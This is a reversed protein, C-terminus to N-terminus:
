LEVRERRMVRLTAATGLFVMFFLIVAIATAEGVKYEHFMTQVMRTSIVHSSTTPNQNTLLWILDFAKMGGIVMFVISIALVEWILPVTISWFQRWPSDGDITASEYLSEPVNEMAALYLVMNFGCAGWISMPVLAWYLNDPSLWAFNEFSAFGMGALAANVLGGQPTYLHMWLLAAAIGGILHPFFFVVRFLKAGGIGRSICAALFLSFPIVFAPVVVMLFLNNRLAIWFADSELLLRRFNLLGRYPMDALNTLGNWDHVSWVFARLSPVIVFATYVLAAPAVFLLINNWRMRQLGGDAEAGPIRRTIGRRRVDRATTAVWYVAALGLASLLLAPKWRHNIKVRLPNDTRAKVAQANIELERAIEQPSKSGSIVGNMADTLLQQMEPYSQSHVGYSAHSREIIALLEDMDPSLNGASAGNVASVVDTMRSFTAAMRRSTMFRLFEAAERPHRSKSMVHYYNSNAFVADSSGVPDPVIPWNFCGLEFGDPIKGKMESKLWSGCPIMAANGTFFQLQAETHSMGLYGPQFYNTALKQVYGLAQVYNPNDISRPQVQWRQAHWAEHGALQYYASDVLPFTYDSYRGQFAFPAIGQKKVEECLAYLEDWTRPKAWGHERFMRKNYWIVSVFYGLPVGYTKGEYRFPDLSGPMFSERWTRGDNEWSPGDLFEDLPLVDGNKILPWMNIYANTVEFFSGELIRVKVKDAVRPDLEMDVRVDPRVKEFERAVLLFFAEGEGGRFFQADIPAREAARCLPCLLLTLIVLASARRRAPLVSAPTGFVRADM